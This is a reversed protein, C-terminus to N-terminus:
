HEHRDTERTEKESMRNENRKNQEKVKGLQGEKVNVLLGNVTM